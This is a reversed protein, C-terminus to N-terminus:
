SKRRKLHHEKMYRTSCKGEHAKVMAHSACSGARVKLLQGTHVAEAAFPNEPSSAALASVSFALASAAALPVLTKRTNM